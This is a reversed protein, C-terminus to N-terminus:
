FYEQQYNWEHDERFPQLLCQRAQGLTLAKGKTSRESDGMEELTWYLPQPQAPFLKPRMDNYLEKLKTWQTDSLSHLRTNHTGGTTNNTACVQLTKGPIHIMTGPAIMDRCKERPVEQETFSSSLVIPEAKTTHLLCFLTILVEQLGVEKWEDKLFPM